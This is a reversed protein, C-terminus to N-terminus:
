EIVENLARGVASLAPSDEPLELLSRGELSYQMLRDDLPVTGLLNLGTKEIEDLIAEHPEGDVRNLLLHAEGVNIQLADRMENIRGASRIGIPSQDSVLLLLDVDRTTRRSMHEMGAENDMVVYRYNPTLEDIFARLIDNVSCYCGPGETRGMVLLDYGTQEALRTQLQYEIWRRKDMGAPLDSRTKLADAQLDGLTGTVEVGLWENLNSNPDADVALLPVRDDALLTAVILSAITTKGTGGKGAVAITYAM